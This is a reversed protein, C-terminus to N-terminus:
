HNGKKEYATHGDLLRHALEIGSPTSFFARKKEIPVKKHALKDITARQRDNLQVRYEPSDEILHWNYAIECLKIIFSAPSEAVIAKALRPSASRFTMLYTTPCFTRCRETDDKDENKGRFSM